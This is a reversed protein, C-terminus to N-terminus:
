SAGCETAQGAKAEARGMKIPLLPWQRFPHNIWFPLCKRSEELLFQLLHYNQKQGKQRVYCYSSILHSWFSASFPSFSNKYSIISDYAFTHLETYPNKNLSGITTWIHTDKGFPRRLSHLQFEVWETRSAGRAIGITIRNRRWCKISGPSWLMTWKLNMSLSAYEINIAAILDLPSLLFKTETYWTFCYNM